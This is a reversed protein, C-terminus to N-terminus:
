FAQNRRGLEVKIGIIPVPGAVLATTEGGVSETSMYLNSKNNQFKTQITPISEISECIQCADV